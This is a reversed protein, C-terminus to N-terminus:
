KASVGDKRFVWEGCGSGFVGIPRKTNFSNELSFGKKKMHKVIEEHTVSQYPYGGLWDDVDHMFNMGRVQKYERMFRSPSIGKRLAHALLALFAYPYKLFPRLWRYRSYLWKEFKWFGCFYTKMYLAIVFRGGDKVFSSANDIALWMDGTHHLVGWSYVTDFPAVDVNTINEKLIDGRRAQWSQDSAHTSLVSKTTAVSDVDYDICYASQAGLRLASLSHLGSGSGIDMFREGALESVLKKLGKDALSISDGSLQQSFESWNRGFDYRTENKEMM